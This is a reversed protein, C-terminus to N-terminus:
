FEMIDIHHTERKEHRGAFQSFGVENTIVTVMHDHTLDTFLRQTHVVVGTSHLRQIRKELCRISIM